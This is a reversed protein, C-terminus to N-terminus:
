DTNFQIFVFTDCKPMAFAGEATIDTNSIHELATLMCLVDGNVTVVEGAEIDTPFVKCHVENDEVQVTADQLEDASVIDFGVTYGTLSYDEAYVYLKHASTGGGGGGGGINQGLLRVADEITQAAQQDSGALADNLADIAGAITGSTSPTGGQAVAIENFAQAITM